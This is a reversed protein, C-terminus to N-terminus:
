RVAHEDTAIKALRQEDAEGSVIVVSGGGLLPAILCRQLLELNGAGPVPRVLRREASPEVEVLERQSVTRGAAIWAQADPEAPTGLYADPQSRVEIGYDLVGDPLTTTFGLGLPHLSCALLPRESADMEDPGRLGDPGVVVADAGTPEVSLAVGSQWVAMAWVLSVWHGPHDQLLPVAIVDGAGLGLEDDILNATKDVWNGFSVASLETREAAGPDYYTILPHSGDRRRRGALHDAILLM